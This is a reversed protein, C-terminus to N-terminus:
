FELDKVSKTVKEVKDSKNTSCKCSGCGSSTSATGNNSSTTDTDSSNLKVHSKSSKGIGLKPLGKNLGELLLCAKCIEMSSIYGCRKCKAASPMKEKVDSKFKLNEGSHIIDIITSPRIKELDKIFARAHGRYANPSYICETSFYDLKKHYAYMVIEKEYTYKFPKSRFHPVLFHLHRM